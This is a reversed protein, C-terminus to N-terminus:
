IRWRPHEKRIYSLLQAHTKFHEQFNYEDSHYECSDISHERCVNMRQHYIGCKNDNGLFECRSEFHIYWKKRYIYTSVKKHAVKWLLYEFDKRTEPTDIEMGVYLCCKAPLCDKCQDLPKKKRKKSM